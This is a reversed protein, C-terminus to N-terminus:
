PALSAGQANTKDEFCEYVGTSINQLWYKEQNKMMIINCQSLRSRGSRRMMTEHSRAPFTCNKRFDLKQFDINIKQFDDFGFFM